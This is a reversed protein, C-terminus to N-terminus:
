DKSSPRKNKSLRKKYPGWNFPPYVKVKTSTRRDHRDFQFGSQEYRAYTERMRKETYRGNHGTAKKSNGRQGGGVPKPPKGKAIWEDKAMVILGASDNLISFLDLNDEEKSLECITLLREVINSRASKDSFIHKAFRSLGFGRNLLILHKLEEDSWLQQRVSNYVDGCFRGCTTTKRHPSKDFEENCVVCIAKVTPPNAWYSERCKDSCFRQNNNVRPVTTGCLACTVEQSLTKWKKRDM